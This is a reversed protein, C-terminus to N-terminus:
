NETLVALVRFHQTVQGARGEAEVYDRSPNKGPYLYRSKNM